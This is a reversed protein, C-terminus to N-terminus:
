RKIEQEKLEYTGQKPTRATIDAREWFGNRRNEGFPISGYAPTIKPYRFTLLTRCFTGPYVTPKPEPHLRIQADLLNNWAFRIGYREKINIKL